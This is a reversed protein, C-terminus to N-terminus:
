GFHLWCRSGPGLNSLSTLAADSDHHLLLSPRQAGPRFIPFSLHFSQCPRCSHSAASADLSAQDQARAQLLHPLPRRPDLEWTKPTRRELGIHGSPQAAPSQELAPTRSGLPHLKLHESDLHPRQKCGRGFLQHQPASGPRSQKLSASGPGHHACRVKHLRRRGHGLLVGNRQMHERPRAPSGKRGLTMSQLVQLLVALPRQELVPPVAAAPSQCRSWHCWLWQPM